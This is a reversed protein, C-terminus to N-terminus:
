GLIQSCPAFAASAAGGLTNLLLTLPGLGLKVAKTFKSGRGVDKDFTGHETELRSFLDDVDRVDTWKELDAEHGVKRLQTTYEQLADKWIEQLPSVEIDPKPPTGNASAM